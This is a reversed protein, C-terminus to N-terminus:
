IIKSSSFKKFHKLHLTEILNKLQPLAFIVFVITLFCCKCYYWVYSKFKFFFVLCWSHIITLIFSSIFSERELNQQRSYRLYNIFISYTLNTNPSNFNNIINNQRKNIM